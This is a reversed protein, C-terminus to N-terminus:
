PRDVGLEAALATQANRVAVFADRLSRRDPESLRDPAIWNDAAEDRRLQRLQHEIRLRTFLRLADSLARADAPPMAAAEVLKDLREQTGSDHLRACLARVRVAEVLPLLGARKLDLRDRHAGDAEVVFRRFTGLPVEHALAQQTLIGLFLSREADIAALGDLLRLSLDRDGALHRIDFFISANLLAKPTPAAIWNRFQTLWGAVDMRWRPNQAMIGGDCFRQGCQDLGACVFEALDRFYGSEHDCGDSLLLGNDQDTYLTQEARAQSGFVLWAYPAPPAGFRVRALELLRRTVADNIVTLVRPLGAGDVGASLLRACLEPLRELVSRLAAIDAALGIERVLYMPHETQLALLDRSTVVGIVHGHDVVPLHHIRADLMCLLADFATQRAGLTIPQPSMIADVAVAPDLDEALVKNRLDRDTVIGELRDATGVLLSSIRRQAMQRAADRISSGTSIMIAPKSALQELRTDFLANANPPRAAATLREELTRVFHRDFEVHERRLAHFSAAPLRWILSDEILTYRFRTPDGTLLSNFGFSDGEELRLVLRGDGDSVEVAGKRILPLADNVVGHELIVEGHRRYIIEIAAAADRLAAEPLASFPSQARLFELVDSPVDM